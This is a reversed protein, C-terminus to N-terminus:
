KEFVRGRCATRWNQIDANNINFDREKAWGQFANMLRDHSYNGGIVIPDPLSTLYILFDVLGGAILKRAPINDSVM